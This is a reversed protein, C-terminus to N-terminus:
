TSVAEGLGKERLKAFLLDRLLNIREKFELPNVHLYGHTYDTELKFLEEEEIKFTVTDKDILRVEELIKIHRSTVPVSIGLERALGSLHMEKNMLKKLISIRTSSSLARFIKINNM